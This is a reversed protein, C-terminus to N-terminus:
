SMKVPRQPWTLYFPDEQDTIDRLAQRYAAAAAADAPELQVDAMQTWDSASLRKKREVRVAMWQADIEAQTRPEEIFTRLLGDGAENWKPQGLGIKHLL